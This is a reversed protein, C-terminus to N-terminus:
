DYNMDISDIGHGKTFMSRTMLDLGKGLIWTIFCTKSLGFRSSEVYFVCRHVYIYIIMYTNYIYIYIHLYMYM